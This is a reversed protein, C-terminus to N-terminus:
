FFARIKERSLDKFPGDRVDFAEGAEEDEFFESVDILFVREEVGPTFNSSSGFDIPIVTRATPSFAELAIEFCFGPKGRQLHTIVIRREM